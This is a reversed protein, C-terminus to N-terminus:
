ASPHPPIEAWYRVDDGCNAFYEDGYENLETYDIEPEILPDHFYVIVPTQFPPMKESISIPTASM